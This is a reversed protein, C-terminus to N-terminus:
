RASQTQLADGVSSKRDLTKEMRYDDMVFGSGVDQITSGANKFGMRRYWALSHSNNKNVTLWLTSIRRQRCLDEAFEMMSRGFGHGRGSKLVYIKSIMLLGAKPVIAMYGVSMNNHSVTYYEYGDALQNVIAEESQFRALMYDVQEQGIIPVYHDTWIERALNVVDVIQERTQVRAFHTM